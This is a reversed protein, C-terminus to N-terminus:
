ANAMGKEFVTRESRRRAILGRNKRRGGQGDREYVWRDFQKAAERLDGAMICKRMTSSRFATIGINYILSLVAARQNDDLGPLENVEPVIKQVDEALMWEANELTKAAVGNKALRGYGTTLYGATDTYLDLRLGEFRRILQKGQEIWMM